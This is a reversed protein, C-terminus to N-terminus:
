IGVVRREDVKNSDLKEVLGMRRHVCLQLIPVGGCNFVKRREVRCERNVHAIAPLSLFISFVDLGCWVRRKENQVM